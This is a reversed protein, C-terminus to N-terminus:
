ILTSAGREVRPPRGPRFLLCTIVGSIIFMYVPYILISYQWREIAFLNITNGISFLIWASKNESEPGSYAKRLTPLAGLLDIFLNLLLALQPSDFWWWLLASLAAGCLCGRDFRTWGGEGYKFAVLATVLPGLVYSAAVWMTNRAGSSRYSTALMLGVVTWIWWTARNPRTKRRVTALLYPFFAALSILGAIRGAWTSLDNM